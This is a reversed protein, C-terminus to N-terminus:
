IFRSINNEINLLKKNIKLKKLIKNNNLTFSYTKQNSLKIKAGTAISIKKALDTLYTKINSSLNYTGTINKTMSLYIIKVFDDILLFDKYYIKKPIIIFRKKLNKRIDDFFLHTVKRKASLNKRGVINSLRFIVVNKRIKLIKKETILKNKDYVSIPRKKSNEKLSLGPGYIKGTSLIIQKINTKLLKKAVILDFDKKINYKKYFYSKNISFNIVFNFKSFHKEKLLVFKNLDVVKFKVKKKKLYKLLNTGLFSNKGIILINLKM